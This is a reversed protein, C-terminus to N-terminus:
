VGKEIKCDGQREGGSSSSGNCTKMHRMSDRKRAFRRDCYSCKFVDPDNHYRIHEELDHRGVFKCECCLIYCVQAPHRQRFHTQLLTFTSCSEHCQLCELTPRWKAIIEDLEKISKRKNPAAAAAAKEIATKKSDAKPISGYHQKLMHNQITAKKSYRKGCLECKFAKNCLHVEIHRQIKSRTFFQKDCCRVFVKETPHVDGFHDHLLTFNPFTEKCLECELTTLWQGIFDDSEQQTFKDTNIELYSNDEMSMSDQYIIGGNNNANHEMRRHYDLTHPMTFCANCLECKYKRPHTHVRLHNVITSQQQLRFGCCLIHCEEPSHQQKFHEELLTFTPFIDKCIVCEINPLYQSIFEDNDEIEAYNTVSLTEANDCVPISELNNINHMRQMHAQLNRKRNFRRACITCKFAKYDIHMRIHEVLHGRKKIKLECCEIYFEEQRHRERFHERLLTYTDFTKRCHRCELNSKWQAIINDLEEERKSKLPRAQPVKVFATLDVDDIRPDTTNEQIDKDVSQKRRKPKSLGLDSSKCASLHAHSKGESIDLSSNNEQENGHLNNKKPMPYEGHQSKLMKEDPNVNMVTFGKGNLIENDTMTDPYSYDVEEKVIGGGCHMGEHSKEDAQEEEVVSEYYMDESEVKVIGPNYLHTDEEHWQLRELKTRSELVTTQFSHFEEIHQWCTMCLMKLHHEVDFIKSDFYEVTISYKENHQGYDDCLNELHGASSANLCLRCLQLKVDAM